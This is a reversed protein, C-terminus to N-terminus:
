GSLKQSAGWAQYLYLSALLLGALVTVVTLLQGWYDVVDLKHTVEIQQPILKSEGEGIHILTDEHMSVYKRYLALALVVLALLSWLVVFPTLTM